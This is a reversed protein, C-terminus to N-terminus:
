RLVLPLYVYVLPRLPANHHVPEDIVTLIPSEYPAYGAATVKIKYKGPLTFFAYYGDAVTTQPNQQGWIGAPWAQWTDADEDVLEYCTVIAGAIRYDIGKSVDYVYGDPDILGQLILINHFPGDPGDCRVQVSAAYNGSSPPAYSGSWVNDYTNVMAAAFVGGAYVEAKYVNCSIPVQLTITDGTRTWVRGGLNALGADDRLHQTTGHATVLIHVPDVLLTPDVTLYVMNSAPNSASSTTRAYFKHLGTSLPTTLNFTFRGDAGAVTTLIPTEAQLGSTEEYLAVEANAAAVGRIQPTNDNTTGSVPDVLTTAVEGSVPIALEPGSWVTQGDVYVMARFYITGSMPANFRVVNRGIVGTGGYAYYAYGKDVDHSKTDWRVYTYQSHAGNASIFAIEVPQGPQVSAPYSDVTVTPQTTYVYAQHFNDAPDIYNFGVYDGVTLDAQCAFDASFAGSAGIDVFRPLSQSNVYTSFGTGTWHYPSVGLRINPSSTGTVRDAAVDLAGSMPMVAVTRSLDALNVEVQDGPVLDLGQTTFTFSGSSLSPTVIGSAKLGGGAARVAVTGPVGPTSYGYVYDGTHHIGVYPIYRSIRVQDEHGDDWYMVELQYGGRLDAAGNFNTAYSGTGSAYFSHHYYNSYPGFYRSAWVNLWGNSPAIGSVTNTETNGNITLPVVSQELHLPGADVVVKDGTDIGVNYFGFGYSSSSSSAVTSYTSKIVGDPDLLKVVLPQRPVPYVSVWDSDPYITMMPVYRFATTDHGFPDRYSTNITYGGVMWGVAYFFRGDTGTTVDYASYYSNIIRVVSNAPGTGSVVGADRDVLVDIGVVDLNVTTAGISVEVKDSAIVDVGNGASDTFNLYTLQGDYATVGAVTGKIAGLANRLVANVATFPPGFVDLDSWSDLRVRVYPGAYLSDGSVINDAADLYLPYAYSGPALNVAGAYNATFAGSANAFVKRYAYSNQYEDRAYVIVKGNSPVGGSVTDAATDFGTVRAAVVNITEPPASGIQAELQDGPVIDANGGCAGIAILRTSASGSSGIQATATAKVAGSANRLTFVAPEGPKGYAYVYDYGYRVEVGPVRWSSLVVSFGDPSTYTLSVNTGPILDFADGVSVAFRGGADATASRFLYSVRDDQVFLSLQANAPATGSVIDAPRDAELTLSVVPITILPEGPLQVEVSDGAQIAETFYVTFYGSSNSTASITSRAEAGRRLTLTFALNATTVSGEVRTTGLYVNCSSLGGSGAASAAAALDEPLGQSDREPSSSLGWVAPPATRLESLAENPPLVGLVGDWARAEALFDATPGVLLLAGLEPVPSFTQLRGERTADVLRPLLLSLLDLGQRDPELLPDAPLLLYEGAPQTAPSTVVLMDEDGAMADAHVQAHATTICLILLLYPFWRRRSM